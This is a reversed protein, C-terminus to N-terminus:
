KKKKLNGIIGGILLGSFTLIEGVLVGSLFKSKPRSNYIYDEYSRRAKMSAKTAEAWGTALKQRKERDNENAMDVFLDKLGIEMETCAREHAIRLDEDTTKKKFIGM